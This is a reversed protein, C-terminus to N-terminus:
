RPSERRALMPVPAETATTKIKYFSKWVLSMGVIAAVARQNSVQNTPAGVNAVERRPPQPAPLKLKLSPSQKMEAELSKRAAQYRKLFEPNAESCVKPAPMSKCATDQARANIREAFAQEGFILEAFFRTKLVQARKRPLQALFRNFEKESWWAKAPMPKGNIKLPEDV